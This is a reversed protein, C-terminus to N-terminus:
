NVIFKNFNNIFEDFKDVFKNFKEKNEETALLSALVESNIDKTEFWLDSALELSQRLSPDNQKLYEIADSYYIIEETAIDTALENLYDKAKWQRIAELLQELDVYEIIDLDWQHFIIFNKM